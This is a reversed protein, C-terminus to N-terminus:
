RIWVILGNTPRQPPQDGVLENHTWKRIRLLSVPENAEFIKLERSVVDEHIRGAAGTPTFPVLMEGAPHRIHWELGKNAKWLFVDVIFTGEIQQDRVWIDKQKISQWQFGDNPVGTDAIGQDGACIEYDKDRPPLYVRWRYSDPTDLLLKAHPKSRDTFEFLGLQDRLREVEAEQKKIESRAVNLDGTVKFHSLVILVLAVALM